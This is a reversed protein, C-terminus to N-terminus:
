DFLPADDDGTLVRTSPPLAVSREFVCEKVAGATFPADGAPVFTSGGRPSRARFTPAGSNYKCFLPERGPNAAFLDATPVALTVSKLAGAEHARRYVARHRWGYAIPGDEAGPWLFVLEDLRRLWRPGDWGPEWDVAALHLPKQDCLFTTRGGRVIPVWGGRPQDGEAPGGRVEAASKLVGDARIAALNEARTTHYLVPRLAAFRAPTFAM